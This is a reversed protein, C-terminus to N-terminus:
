IARARVKRAPRLHANEADNVAQPRTAGLALHRIQRAAQLLAAMIDLQKQCMWAGVMEPWLNLCRSDRNM